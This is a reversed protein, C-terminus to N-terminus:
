SEVEDTVARASVRRSLKGELPLWLRTCFLACCGEFRTYQARSRIQRPFATLATKVAQSVSRRVTM